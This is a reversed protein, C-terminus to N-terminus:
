NVFVVFHGTSNKRIVHLSPDKNKFLYYLVQVITSQVFFRVNVTKVQSLSYNETKCYKKREQLDCMSFVMPFASFLMQEPHFSLITTRFFFM